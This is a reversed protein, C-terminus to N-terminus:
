VNLTGPPPPPECGFQNGFTRVDASCSKPTDLTTICRYSETHVGGDEPHESQPIPDPLDHCRLGVGNTQAHLVLVQWLADGRSTTGGTRRAACGGIRLRLSVCMMM